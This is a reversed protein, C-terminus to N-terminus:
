CFVASTLSCREVGGEIRSSVGIFATQMHKSLLAAEITEADYQLVVADGRVASLTNGEVHLSFGLTDPKSSFSTYLARRGRKEDDRCHRDFFARKGGRDVYRTPVRSFLTQLTNGHKTKLEIGMFDADKSSNARVGLADEVTRGYRGSGRATVKLSGLVRLKSFLIEHPEVTPLPSRDLHDLVLLKLLRQYHGRPKLGSCYPLRQELLIASINQFKLEVAKASRPLRRALSRYIAAKNARGGAVEVKLLKFYAKVAARVEDESWGM